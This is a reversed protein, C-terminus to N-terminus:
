VNVPSLSFIEFVCTQNIETIQIEIERPISVKLFTRKGVSIRYDERVAVVGRVWELRM